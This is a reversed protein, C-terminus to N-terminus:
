QHAWQIYIYIYIYIYAAGCDVSVLGHVKRLRRVKRSRSSIALASCIELRYLVYLIATSLLVINTM